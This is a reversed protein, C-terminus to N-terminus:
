HCSGQPYKERYEHVSSMYQEHNIENLEPWLLFGHGKNKYAKYLSIEFDLKAEMDCILSPIDNSRVLRLERSIAFANGSGMAMVYQEIGVKTGAFFSVAIIFLISLINALRKIM